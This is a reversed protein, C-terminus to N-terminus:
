EEDESDAKYPQSLLMWAIPEDTPADNEDFWGTENLGEYQTPYYTDDIHYYVVEMRGKPYQPPLQM